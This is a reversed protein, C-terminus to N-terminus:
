IRMLRFDKSIRSIFNYVRIVDTIRVIISVYESNFRMFVLIKNSNDNYLKREVCKLKGLLFEDHLM